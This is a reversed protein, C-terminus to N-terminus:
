RILPPTIHFSDPCRRLADPTAANFPKAPSRSSNPECPHAVAAVPQRNHPALLLKEPKTPEHLRRPGPARDDQEAAGPDALRHKPVSPDFSGPITPHM